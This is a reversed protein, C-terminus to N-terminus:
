SHRATGMWLMSDGGPELEKGVGTATLVHNRTAISILGLIFNLPGKRRRSSQARSDARQGQLRHM